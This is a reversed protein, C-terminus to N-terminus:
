CAAALHKSSLCILFDTRCWLFLLFVFKPTEVIMRWFYVYDMRSAAAMRMRDFIDSMHVFVLLRYKVPMQLPFVIIHREIM